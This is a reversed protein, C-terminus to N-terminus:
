YRRGTGSGQLQAIARQRESLNAGQVAELLPHHQKIYNERARQEHLADQRRKASIKVEAQVVKKSPLSERIFQAKTKEITPPVFPVPKGYSRTQREQGGPRSM